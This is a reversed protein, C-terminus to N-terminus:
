DSLRRNSAQEELTMSATLKERPKDVMTRSVTGLDDFCMKLVRQCDFLQLPIDQIFLFLSGADQIKRLATQNLKLIALAFRFLVKAGEYV